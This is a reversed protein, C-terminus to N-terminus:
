TASTGTDPGCPERWRPSKLGLSMSAAPPGGILLELVQLDPPRSLQVTTAGYQKQAQTTCSVNVTDIAGFFIPTMMDHWKSIKLHGGPRGKTSYHVLAAGQHQPTGPGGRPATTYPRGWPRGKTSYYWAAGTRLQQLTGPRGRTSHVLRGKTTYWAGWAAGPATTYWPRGLAPGGRPATTSPATAAGPYWPRGQPTAPGKTSHHVLAAGQHQLTGPRGKTSHHAARPATTYGAAGQHTGAARPAPAAGQHQPVLGGRPTHHRRGKRPTGAARPATTYGGGRVLGGRPALTGPGGQHWTGGGPGGKTSYTGPRGKTSNHVRAARPATTYWAAGQHQTYHVLAAGPATTYWAAARTSYAGPGGRARDRRGQHQLGGQAAGQHTGPGHHQPTGPRGKTGPPGGGRTRGAAGQHQLTGPGGQQHQLYWPRGQHQPLPGGRHWYWPRGKTSYAGPALLGGRPATGPRGQQALTPAVLTGRGQHQLTGPGGRPATTYGPRGKTSYHVLAAGQHQPTGPGGRPATTYWPRGKTSYHVLAAGKCGWGWPRVLGECIINALVPLASM